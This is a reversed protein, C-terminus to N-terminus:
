GKQYLSVVAGAPDRVVCYRDAGAQRVTGITSGGLRHCAELSQDLNEVLIYIMWQPPLHANEGRTHCIGSVPEGSGPASMMFDSYEGMSLDASKWGVVQKYFDRVEEANPVTLDVWMIGGLVGQISDSMLNGKQLKYFSHKYNDHSHKKITL